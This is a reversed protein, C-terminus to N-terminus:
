FNDVHGYLGLTNGGADFAFPILLYCDAALPYAGRRGRLRWAIPIAAMGAPYVIGRLWLAEGHFGGAAPVVFTAALLALVLSKAGALTGAATLARRQIPAITIM